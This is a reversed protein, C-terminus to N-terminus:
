LHYIHHPLRPQAYAILPYKKPISIGFVEEMNLDQPKMNGPLKWTFGHLLNALSSEIVKIGLNYGPCMRRGSGFPLLEFSQGKVDINKGIFREPWFERPREYVKSDRQITYTNVLVLTSKPIDYGEIKVQESSMHPVLFPGAPHLRMTEKVIACIYPLNQLDEEQVWRKKGIM